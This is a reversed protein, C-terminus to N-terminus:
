YAKWSPRSQSSNVAKLKQKVLFKEPLFFSQLNKQSCQPKESKQRRQLDERSIYLLKLELESPLRFLTWMALRGVKLSIKFKM